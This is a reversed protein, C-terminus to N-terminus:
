LKIMGGGLSTSLIYISSDSQGDMHGKTQRHVCGWQSSEWSAIQSLRPTGQSWLEASDMWLIHLENFLYKVLQEIIEGALGMVARIPAIRRSNPDLKTPTYRPVSRPRTSDHSIYSILYVSLSSILWKQGELGMVVRGPAISRQDPDLKNHTYRQVLDQGPENM